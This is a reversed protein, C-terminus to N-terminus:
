NRGFSISSRTPGDDINRSTRSATSSSSGGVPTKRAGQTGNFEFSSNSLSTAPSSRRRLLWRRPKRAGTPSVRPPIPFPQWLPGVDNVGGAVSLDSSAPLHLNRCHSRFQFPYPGRIHPTRVHRNELSHVNM